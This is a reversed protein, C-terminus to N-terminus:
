WPSNSKEQLLRAVVAAENSPLNCVYNQCIYATAKGDIRRLSKLIDLGEALQQQAKGGDALVMIKNPIFRKHVEGVLAQTDASARDGAILIQMPKDLRFDVAVMMQPMGQPSQLLRREFVRISKEAMERWVKNDNMQSLRLLNLVGISNPSPEAGDYDEKIRILISPDKGDTNYFGGEKPDWFLRIQTQTLEIALMLWRGDLSTEYLDLLGQSFFTYDDILGDVAVSGARYRRKLLRSQPDYLKRHILSAAKEAARLYREERVVQYGKAMASIMLGNAATIIKDDLFPRPRRTRVKFLKERSRKLIEKTQAMSKAFKKATEELSAAIHLINKHKFEGFPDRAVNGKKRVGYHDNFIAAEQGLLDVIEQYTWAYFAGEAKEEPEDQDIASDADEASYFGGDQGTMERLVYELIERAIAVFFPDGTIQYAELYAIALQAQDYLMKEFHPLFWRQDTSYRHFGGGLHDRMGGNAMSRLTHLTMQLAKKEGTRAHYRLLFNLNVPRPFKPAKGFGGHLPDHNSAYWQYTLDLLGEEVKLDGDGSAKQLNKLAETIKQASTLVKDRNKEWEQAVASLIQKFGPNGQRREPPFYTGGFFPKLEPTLFVSMPWGGRGTTAQVFTMYVQDVDPREERDVKVSVFHENMIAAIDANSFSEHEMVHCWHCTSYGVSLFIPKNEKRAREFAEQAWPYWDVPNYAHQLLYPSKEHILRNSKRASSAVNVTQEETRHETPVQAPVPSGAALAVLLATVDVVTRYKPKFIM